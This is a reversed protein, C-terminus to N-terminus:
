WKRNMALRPRVTVNMSGAHACLTDYFLVDGRKPTLEVPDGIDVKNIDRNLAWMFGYRAPDSEALAKLRLHSGPWVITGGGHVDVDSLYTMAAIMFARPFTKHGDKEIAHDIHPEPWEWSGPSPLANIVYAENPPPFLTLDENALEAAARLMADTYCATLTPEDFRGHAGGSEGSDVMARLRVEAARSIEDPILGSVVLYGREGFEEVQRKLLAGM